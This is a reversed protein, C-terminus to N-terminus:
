KSVNFIFKRQGSTEDSKNILRIRNLTDGWDASLKPIEKLDIAEVVIDYLGQDVAMIISASDKYTGFVIAGDEIVSVERPTMFVWELDATKTKLSYTDDISVFSQGKRQYHFARHWSKVQAHDPYCDEIDMQFDMANDDSSYTLKSAAAEISPRQPQGNIIPLNHYDSRTVWHTLSYRNENFYDLSYPLAGPDICVPQEDHYLVFHGVDNHNHSEHNHGGKACLFFGRPDGQSERAVVVQVDKIYADRVYPVQYGEAMLDKYKFLNWFNWNTRYTNGSLCLQFQPQQGLLVINRQFVAKGLDMLKQDGSAVGYRYLLGGDRGGTDKCPADAFNVYNNDGIYLRYIYKGMNKFKEDDFIPITQDTARYVIDMLDFAMGAAVTWYVPGENCGGDDGIFDLYTQVSSIIKKIGQIKLNQDQCGYMYTVMCNCNIWPNWNGASHSEPSLGMWHFEDSALYPKIVREMLEEDIRQSINSSIADFQNRLFYNCWTLLSATEAAFLDIHETRRFPTKKDIVEKKNLIANHQPVVWTSEECICFVGNIIDKMYKGQGQICEAMLLEGLINRRKMFRKHYPSGHVGSEYFDLYESAKLQPWEYGLLADANDIIKKQIDKSTSEWAQRDEYRPFTDKAHNKQLYEVIAPRHQILMIIEM